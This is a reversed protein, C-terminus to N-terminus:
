GGNGSAAYGSYTRENASLSWSHWALGDAGGGYYNSFTEEDLGTTEPTIQM